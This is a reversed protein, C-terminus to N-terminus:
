LGLVALCLKLQIQAMVGVTAQALDKAILVLLGNVCIGLNTLLLRIVVDIEACIALGFKLSLTAFVQVCLTIISVICAVISAKAQADLVIGAGLKLLDDSCGKLLAVVIAIKVKLDELNVCLLLAKLKVELEGEICLKIFLRSIDDTGTVPKLHINAIPIATVMLGLSFVVAVVAAFRLFSSM